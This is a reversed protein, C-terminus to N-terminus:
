FPLVMQGMAEEPSTFLQGDKIALLGLQQLRVTLATITVEFAGALEYLNPWKTRDINLAYDRLLPQPMLIAAAYRNVARKEEPEDSRARINRLLEQGEPCSILRKMVEVEGRSANRLVFPSEDAAFLSPHQLVETGFYLDWHGAEHGITGRLLGPKEEFLPCHTENLIILQEPAQLGALIQEGPLETIRDWLLNLELVEEVFREIPIPPTLPTGLRLELETLRQAAL